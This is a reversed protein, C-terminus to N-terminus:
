FIPGGAPEVPRGAADAQNELSLQLPHGTYFIKDHLLSKSIKMNEWGHFPVTSFCRTTTVIRPAGGGGGAGTAYEQGPTGMSSPKLHYYDPAAPRRVGNVPPPSFPVHLLPSARVALTRM